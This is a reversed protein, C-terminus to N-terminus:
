VRQPLAGLIAVVGQATDNGCRAVQVFHRDRGDRVVVQQALTHALGVRAAVGAGEDVILKPALHFGDRRFACARALVVIGGPTHDRGGIAQAHCGM